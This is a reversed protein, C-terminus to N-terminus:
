PLRDLVDLGPDIGPNAWVLLCTAWLADLQETLGELPGDLVVRGGELAATISGCRASPGGVSGVRPSELLASISWGLFTPRLEPEARVLDWKGHAGTLVFLSDIGYGNAGAIDTDLRDGCFVPRVAGTRRVMEEFLPAFPKGFMEPTRGPAVTEIVRIAAGLGPVLGRETPRTLDPNTAFWRAGNQVALATEDLMPWSLEPDYGQLVAVPRDEAHRTVTFGAGRMVDILNQTGAVLVTAGHPLIRQLGHAAAEASSIVDAPEAPFGLSTLKRCLTASTPAANNTVYAVRVGAERLGQIAAVAGDVPVPGLYIVGDLDFFAVDHNDILRM